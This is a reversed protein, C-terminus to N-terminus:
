SWTQNQKCIFWYQFKKRWITYNSEMRRWWKHGFVLLKTWYWSPWRHCKGCFTSKTENWVIEWFTRGWQHCFWIGGSKSLDAFFSMVFANNWKKQFFIFCFYFNFPNKFGFFPILIMTTVFNICKRLSWNEAKILGFQKYVYRIGM